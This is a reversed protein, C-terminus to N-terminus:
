SKETPLGTIMIWSGLTEEAKCKTIKGYFSPLNDEISELFKICAKIISCVKNLLNNNLIDAM